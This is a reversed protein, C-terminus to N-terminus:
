GVTEHSSRTTTKTTTSLQSHPAPNTVTTRKRKSRPLSANFREFSQHWPHLLVKCTTMAVIKSKHCVQRVLDAGMPAARPCPFPPQCRLLQRQRNPPNRNIPSALTWIMMTSVTGLQLPPKPSWQCCRLLTWALDWGDNDVVSEIRDAWNPPIM